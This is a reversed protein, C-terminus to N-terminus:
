LRRDAAPLIVMLKPAAQRSWRRCSPALRAVAAVVAAAAVAAAVVAVAVAAAVVVVAVAAVLFLYRNAVLTPNAVSSAAVQLQLQLLPKPVAVVSAPREVPLVQVVWAVLARRLRSPVALARLAQQWDIPDFLDVALLHCRSTAAPEAAVAREVEEPVVAREAVVAVAAALEQRNPDASCYPPALTKPDLVPL